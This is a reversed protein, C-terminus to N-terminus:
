IDPDKTWQIYDSLEAMNWRVIITLDIGYELPHLTKCDILQVTGDAVDVQNLTKFGM